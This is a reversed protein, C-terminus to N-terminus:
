VTVTAMSSVMRLCPVWLDAFTAKSITPQDSNSRVIAIEFWAEEDSLVAKGFEIFSWYLAQVKRANAAVLQNGTHLSSYMLCTCSFHISAEAIYVNRSMQLVYIYMYINYM